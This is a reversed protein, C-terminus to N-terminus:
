HGKPPRVLSDRMLQWLGVGYLLLMGLSSLSVTLLVGRVEPQTWVTMLWAAVVALCPSVSSGGVGRTSQGAKPNLACALSPIVLVLYHWWVLKASLCYVLCGMAVMHIPAPVEGPHSGPLGGPPTHHVRWLVLMVPTLFVFPLILLTDVGLLDKLLMVLSANGGGLPIIQEPMQTLAVMWHLWCGPTGFFLSSIGMAVAAGGGMGVVAIRLPGYHRSVLFGWAWLVAVFITNPKFMLILGLLVGGWLYRRPESWRTQIWSFLALLAIQIQNVNGARVDSHLPGFWGLLFVLLTLTLWASAGVLKCIMWIALLGCGISLLRHARHVTEYQSGGFLGFVAYLCPTSYTDLTPRFQAVARHRLADPDAEARKGMEVGIRARGAESYINDIEMSRLAQGVAWFQYIDMGPWKDGMRWLGLVAFALAACLLLIVALREANRFPPSPSQPRPQDSPTASRVSM